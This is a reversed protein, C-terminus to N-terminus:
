ADTIKEPEFLHNKSKQETKEFIMKSKGKLFHTRILLLDILKVGLINQKM